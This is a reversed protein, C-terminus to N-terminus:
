ARKPYDFDILHARGPKARRWDDIRFELRVVGCTPVNEINADAIWNVFDTMGPNHGVLAAHTHIPDLGFVTDLLSETSALYLAPEWAIEPVPELRAAITEATEAARRAPSAVLLSPPDPWGALRRGMEPADRRGRGSLPRDFDDMGTGKSGSKAHRIVTLLRAVTSGVTGTRRSRIWQGTNADM